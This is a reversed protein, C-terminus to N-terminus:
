SLNRDVRCLPLNDVTSYLGLCALGQLIDSRNQLFGTKTVIIYYLGAYKQIVDLIERRHICHICLEEWLVLRCTYTILYRSKRGTCHYLNVCYRSFLIFITMCRTFSAETVM